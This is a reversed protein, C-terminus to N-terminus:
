RAERNLTSWFDHGQPTNAWTMAFDISAEGVRVGTTTSALCLEFLFREHSISHIKPAITTFLVSGAMENPQINRKM